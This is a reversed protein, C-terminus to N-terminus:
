KIVGVFSQVKSRLKPLDNELNQFLLDHKLAIQQIRYGLMGEQFQAETDSIAGVLLDMLIDIGMLKQLLAGSHADQGFFPEKLKEHVYIVVESENSYYDLPPLYWLTGLPLHLKKWDESSKWEPITAFGGNDEIIKFNRRGLVQYKDVNDNTISISFEMNKLTGFQELKSKEIVVISSESEIVKRSVVEARKLTSPFVAVTLTHTGILKELNNLRIEFILDAMEVCQRGTLHLCDSYEDSIIQSGFALRVDKLVEDMSEFPRAIINLKLNM